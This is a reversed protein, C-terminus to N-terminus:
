LVWGEVCIKKNGKHQPYQLEGCGKKRRRRAKKSQYTMNQTCFISHLLKFLRFEQTPNSGSIEQVSSLARSQEVM